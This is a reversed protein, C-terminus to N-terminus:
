LLQLPCFIRKSILLTLFMDPKGFFLHLVISIVTLPNENEGKYYRYKTYNGMIIIQKINETSCTRSNELTSSTIIYKFTHKFYYKTKSAVQPTYYEFLQQGKLKKVDKM